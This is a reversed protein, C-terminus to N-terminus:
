PPVGTVTRAFAPVAPPASVQLPLTSSVAGAQAWPAVLLPHRGDEPRVSRRDMWDYVVRWHWAPARNGFWDRVPVPPPLRHDRVLRPLWGEPVGVLEAVRPGALYNPSTPVFM